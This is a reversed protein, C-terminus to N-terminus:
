MQDFQCRCSSDFGVAVPKSSSDAMAAMIPCFGLVLATSAIRWLVALHEDRGSLDADAIGLFDFASLLHEKVANQARDIARSECLLKSAYDRGWTAPEIPQGTM